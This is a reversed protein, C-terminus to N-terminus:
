KENNLLKIISYLYQGVLLKLNKAEKGREVQEWAKNLRFEKCYLYYNLDEFYIFQHFDQLDMLDRVFHISTRFYGSRKLRVTSFTWIDGGLGWPPYLFYRIILFDGKVKAYCPKPSKPTAVRPTSKKLVAWL